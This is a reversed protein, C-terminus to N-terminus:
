APRSSRIMRGSAAAATAARRSPRSMSNPSTWSRSQANGIRKCTARKGRNVTRMMPSPTAAASMPM